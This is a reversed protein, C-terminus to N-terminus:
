GPCQGQRRVTSFHQCGPSCACCARKQCVLSCACPGHARAKLDFLSRALVYADESDEPQGAASGAEPARPTRRAGRASHPKTDPEAEPLGANHLWM